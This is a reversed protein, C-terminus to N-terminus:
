SCSCGRASRCASCRRRCRRADRRGRDRDHAGPAADRRGVRARRLRARARPRRARAHDAPEARRDRDAARRHRLRGAAHRGGRARAVRDPADVTVRGDGERSLTAATAVADAGASLRVAWYPEDLEAVRAPMGRLSTVAGRGDDDPEVHRGVVSLTVPEGDLRLTVREGIRAGLAELAGRGLTVEGPARAARGDRIAYPFAALPGDLVRAHIETRAAGSLMVERVRAVATVEGRRALLREVEAAPLSSEM